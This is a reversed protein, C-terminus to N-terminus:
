CRCLFFLLQKFSKWKTKLKVIQRLKIKCMQSFVNPEYIRRQTRTWGLHSSSDKIDYHKYAHRTKVKSCGTHYKQNEIHACHAARDFIVM